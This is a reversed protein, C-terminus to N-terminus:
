EKYGYGYEDYGFIISGDGHFYGVDDGIGEVSWLELEDQAPNVATVVWFVKDSFKRDNIKLELVVSDLLNIGTTDAGLKVSVVEPIDGFRSIMLDALDQADVASTLVTDYTKRVRKNYKDELELERSTDLLKNRYTGLDIDKNYRVVVSSNYLSKSDQTGKTPIQMIKWSPIAHIGYLDGWRRITLHGSNKTILFASDNKLAESILDRVNGDDIYLGIEASNTKYADTEVTDWNSSTYQTNSKEEIERTIIQGITNDAYGTVDATEADEAEFEIIFNDGVIFATSGVEVLFNFGNDDYQFQSDETNEVKFSGYSIDGSTAQRYLTFTALGGSVSTCELRYVGAVPTNDTSLDSVRGNGTNGADETIDGSTQASWCDILGSAQLTDNLSVGDGSYIASLATIYDTDLALYRKYKVGTSYEGSSVQILPINLLPGYGIPINSGILAEDIDPFEEDDFVRCVPDTFLRLYEAGTMSFRKADVSVYDVLGKRITQFDDFGPVDESSRKVTIPANTFERTTLRDFLGDDNHLNVKFTGYRTEGSISDSLRINFSPVSLKVPTKVKDGLANIMYARDPHEEDPVASLYFEEQFLRNSQSFYQWPKIPLNIDIDTASRVFYSLETTILDAETFVEILFRSFFLQIDSSVPNDYRGGWLTWYTDSSPRGAHITYINYDRDYKADALALSPSFDSRKSLEVLYKISGL